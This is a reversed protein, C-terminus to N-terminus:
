PTRTREAVLWGEGSEGSGYRHTVSIQLFTESIQFFV